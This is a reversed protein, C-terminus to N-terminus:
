IGGKDKQPLSLNEIVKKMKKWVDTDIKKEADPTVFDDIAKKWHRNSDDEKSLGSRINPLGSLVDDVPILKKAKEILAPVTIIDTRIGLLIVRHRTQPIGYEESKIIFDKPQFIEGGFMDIDPRKVLSYIKYKIKSKDINEKGQLKKYSEVPNQLDNILQNFVGENDVKSSLIGKVNEM